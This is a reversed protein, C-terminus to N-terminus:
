LVLRDQSELFRNVFHQGQDRFIDKTISEIASITITYRLVPTKDM